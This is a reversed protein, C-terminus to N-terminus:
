GGFGHDAGGCATQNLSLSQNWGHDAGVGSGACSCSCGCTVNLRVAGGDFAGYVTVATGAHHFMVSEGSELEVVESVNAAGGDIGIWVTISHAYNNTVSVHHHVCTADLLPDGSVSIRVPRDGSYVRFDANTATTTALTIVVLVIVATLVGGTIMVASRRVGKM